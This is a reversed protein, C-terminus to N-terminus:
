EDILTRIVRFGVRNDGSTPPFTERSASRCAKAQYFWDGGRIIKLDGMDPGSPDLLPGEEYPAYWDWCWEAVNGHMDFLGFANATKSGVTQPQAPEANGGYWGYIDLVPDIDYGTVTIDGGCFATTTEGRAFWEWEAETPLRWGDAEHNWTVSYGDIEYAPTFGDAVSRLNCYDLAELWTVNHVPLDSGVYESNNVLGMDTWGSQTVEYLEIQVAGNLTVTTLQEDLDRGMEEEPSGMEFIIPLHTFLDEDADTEVPDSEGNSFVYYFSHSGEELLLEKQYTAGIYNDGSILDMAYVEGDLVLDQRVSPDRSEEDLYVVEFTFTEEISGVRPSVTAGKLVTGTYTGISASLPLPSLHGSEDWARISFFAIQGPTFGDVLLTEVTGPAAPQLTNSVPTAEAWDAETFIPSDAWRIDYSDALGILGDDGTAYWSLEVTTFNFPGGGIGQIPSPTGLDAFSDGSLIIFGEEYDSVLVLGDETLALDSAYGTPVNGAYVPDFPDNVDVIHVGGTAAAIFALGDRVVIARSYAPLDIGGTFVPSDPITIDFIQLGMTGDAAYAHDGEVAVDLAHGPTDVSGAVGFTGLILLRADMVVLGMENDAVYLWKDKYALGKAYGLTGSFVGNYELVGPVFANSEFVRVGKWNEALFLLYPENPDEAPVIAMRNGDIATTGQLLDVPNLPDTIDYSTVGETGEVIHAIDVIEGNKFLRVVKISEAYKTTNITTRLVPNTPDSIDVVHLGAEGGAVFAYHGLAAVGENASPLDLQGLIPYPSDPFEYLEQKGCAVSLLLVTGLLLRTWIRMRMM